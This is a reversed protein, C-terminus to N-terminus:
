DRPPYSADLVSPAARTAAWLGDSRVNENVVLVAAVIVMIVMSLFVARSPPKTTSLWLAGVALVALMFAVILRVSMPGSCGHVHRWTGVQWLNGCTSDRTPPDLWSSAFWVAAFAAVLGAVALGVRARIVFM